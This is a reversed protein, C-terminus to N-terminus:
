GAEEAPQESGWSGNKYWRVENTETRTDSIGARKEVKLSSKLQRTAFREMYTYPFAPLNARGGKLTEMPAHPLAPLLWFM